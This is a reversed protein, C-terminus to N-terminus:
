FTLTATEEENDLELIAEIESNRDMSDRVLRALVKNVDKFPSLVKQYAMIHWWDQEGMPSADYHGSPHEVKDELLCVYHFFIDDDSTLEIKVEKPDYDADFGEGSCLARIHIKESSAQNSNFAEAISSANSNFGGSSMLPYGKNPGGAALETRVISPKVSVKMAVDHDM